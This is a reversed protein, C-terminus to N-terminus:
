LNVRLSGDDNSRIMVGHRRAFSFSVSPIAAAAEPTEPAPNGANAHEAETVM